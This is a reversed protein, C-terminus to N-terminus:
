PTVYRLGYPGFMFMGNGYAVSFVSMSLQTEKWTVLDSSTYCKNTNNTVVYLGNGYAIDRAQAPLVYNTPKLTWNIGNTSTRIFNSTGSAALMILQKGDDIIKGPNGGGDGTIGYSAWTAGNDTSIIYNSSFIGVFMNLRAIYQMGETFGKRATIDIWTNGDDTSLAARNVRSGNSTVSTAIVVGNNNSAIGRWWAGAPLSKAQWTVGDNDSIYVQSTNNNGNATPLIFLRKSKSNKAFANDYVLAPFATANTPGAWGDGTTKYMTGNQPFTYFKDDAYTVYSAGGVAVGTVTSFGSSSLDTLGKTKWPNMIILPM